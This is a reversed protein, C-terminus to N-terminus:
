QLARYLRVDLTQKVLKFSRSAGGRNFFRNMATQDMQCLSPSVGKNLTTATNPFYSRSDCGIQFPDDSISGLRYSLISNIAAIKSKHRPALLPAYGCHEAVRRLCRLWLGSRSLGKPLPPDPKGQPTTARETSYRQPYVGERADRGLAFAARQM